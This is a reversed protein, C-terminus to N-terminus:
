PGVLLTVERLRFRCPRNDPQLRILAVPGDVWVTTTRDDCRSFV